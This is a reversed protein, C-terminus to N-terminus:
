HFNTAVNKAIKTKSVQRAGLVIVTPFQKLLDFIYSEINRKFM